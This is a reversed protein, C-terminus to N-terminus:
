AVEGNAKRSLADLGQRLLRLSELDTVKVSARAIWELAAAIEEPPTEIETRPRLEGEHDNQFRFAWAYLAARLIKSRPAGRTDTVLQPTVTAPSDAISARQKAAATPWKMAAYAYAYAYAYWTPSCLEHLELAPLGTETDFQEGNPVARDLTLSRNARRNPTSV